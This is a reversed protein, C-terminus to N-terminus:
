LQSDATQATQDTKDTLPIRRQRLNGDGALVRKRLGWLMRRIEITERTLRQWDLLSLVAELEMTSKISIGLYRAFEKNSDAGCGEVINFPVSEAADIIQSKLSTYGRRPFARTAKRINLAHAHARKWVDLRRFSQM